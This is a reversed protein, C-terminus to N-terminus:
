RLEDEIERLITHAKSEDGFPGLDIEVRTVNDSQKNLAVTIKNNAADTAVVMGQLADRKTAPEDIRFGLDDMADKAADHTRDLPAEVHTVLDGTVKNWTAKSNSPGRSDSSCGCLLAGCLSAAIMGNVLGKM